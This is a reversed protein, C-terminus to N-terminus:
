IRSSKRKFISLIKEFSRSVHSRILQPARQLIKWFTCFCPPFPPLPPYICPYGSNSFLSSAIYALFILLSLKSYIHSETRLESVFASRQSLFDIRKEVNLFIKRELEIYFIPHLLQCGSRRSCEGSRRLWVDM